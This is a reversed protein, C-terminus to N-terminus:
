AAAQKLEIWLQESQALLRGDRTFLATAAGHKRGDDFLSWGAVILEDGPAPRDHIQATIRALVM